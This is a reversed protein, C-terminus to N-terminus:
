PQILCGWGDYEGKLNLVEDFLELVVDDIEAPSNTKSFEIFYNGREDPELSAQKESFGKDKIHELFAARATLNPLFVGHDIERRNQLNDGNLELQDRVRRNWILQMSRKSPYLFEFYAHWDRDERTGTVFSYKSFGRMAAKAAREFREGDTTYFYFDRNGGSTNRGVFLCTRDEELMSVIGDGLLLLDDFEDQSSLGDDRPRLMKVRLYGMIPHTELPAHERAGLDVFISAPENDVLLPYFDWDDTM